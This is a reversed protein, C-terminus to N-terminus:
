AGHRRQSYARFPHTCKLSQHAFERQYQAPLDLNQNQLHL